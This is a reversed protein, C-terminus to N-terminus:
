HYSTGKKGQNAGWKNQYPFNEVYLFIKMQMKVFLFLILFQFTISYLYNDEQRLMKGRERKNGKGNEKNRIEKEM